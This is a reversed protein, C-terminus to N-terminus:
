NDNLGFEKTLYRNKFKSEMEIIEKDSIKMPLIQLIIYKFKQFYEPGHENYLTVLEQNGGHFTNSYSSWRGWIGDSGYASGVYLKGTNGDVIMYIGKVSSLAKFYDSYHGDIIEHLQEFSLEVSDYNSFPEVTRHLEKGWIEDLIFDKGSAASNYFSFGSERKFIMRGAYEDLELPVREWAYETGSVLHTLRVAFRYRCHKGDIGAMVLYIRKFDTPKGKRVDITDKLLGEDNMYPDVYDVGYWWVNYDTINELSLLQELNM